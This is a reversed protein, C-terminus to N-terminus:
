LEREASAVEAVSSPITLRFGVGSTRNNALVLDGGHALAIKRAIYLGLGSGPATRRAVKGRYFREFIRDREGEEIPPGDNWVTIAAMDENAGLEISVGSDPSSYRCANELLQSMALGILEPDVSIDSVESVRRFCIKRDPWLKSFRRVYGEVLAAADAAELRPKLDEKDVRALRILRSTLDGLRSAETEILEALEEKEPVIAGGIRLGGAAALIVALPTKFEHALADLIASRLVEAEAHAAATSATRFSRARELAAAALAALASATGETTSLGEFGIVGVLATGARLCRVAIGFEPYVADRNAIIGDRTKGELGGRSNGASYCELTAADFLCVARVDFASLFPELFAKGPISPPPLALLQQSVKYLSEMNSRQQMANRAEFRSRSQIRTIVLSVILLCCLSIAELPGEVEFSFIPETFFYDLSAVAIVSVACAELFSSDITNLVVAILLLVAASASNLHLRFCVATVAAILLTGRLLRWAIHGFRATRLM